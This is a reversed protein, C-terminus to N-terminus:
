NLHMLFIMPTKEIKVNNSFDPMYSMGSIEIWIYKKRQIRAAKEHIVM